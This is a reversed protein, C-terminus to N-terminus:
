DRVQGPVSDREWSSPIQLLQNDGDADSSLSCVFGAMAPCCKEVHGSLIGNCLPVCGLARTKGQSGPAASWAKSSSM